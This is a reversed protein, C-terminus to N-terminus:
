FFYNCFTQKMSRDLLESLCQVSKLSGFLVLFMVNLQCNSNIINRCCYYVSNFISYSLLLLISFNSFISKDKDSINPMSFSYSNSFLCAFTIYGVESKTIDHLIPNLDILIHHTIIVVYLTIALKYQQQLLMLCMKIYTITISNYWYMGM